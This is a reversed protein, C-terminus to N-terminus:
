SDSRSKAIRTAAKDLERSGAKAVLAYAV